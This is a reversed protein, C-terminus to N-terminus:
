LKFANTKNTTLPQPLFKIQNASLNKAILTGGAINGADLTAVRSDGKGYAVNRLFARQSVGEGTARIREKELWPFRKLLAIFMTKAGFLEGVTHQYEATDEDDDAYELREEAEVIEDTITWLMSIIVSFGYSVSEIDPCDSSLRGYGNRHYETYVARHNKAYGDVTQDIHYCFDTLFRRFDEAKSATTPERYGVSFM